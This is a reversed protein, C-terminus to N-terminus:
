LKGSDEMLVFLIAREQEYDRAIVATVLNEYQASQEFQKYRKNKAFLECARLEDGQDKAQYAAQILCRSLTMTNNEMAQVSYGSLLLFSLFAIKTRINKM